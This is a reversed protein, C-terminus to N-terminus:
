NALPSERHSLSFFITAEFMVNSQPRPLQFHLTYVHVHLLQKFFYVLMMATRTCGDYLIYKAISKFHGHLASQEHVTSYHAYMYLWLVFPPCNNLLTSVAQGCTDFSDSCTISSQLRQQLQLAVGRIRVGTPGNWTDQKTIEPALYHVTFYINYAM